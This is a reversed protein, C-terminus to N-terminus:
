GARCRRTMLLFDAKATRKPSSRRRWHSNWIAL